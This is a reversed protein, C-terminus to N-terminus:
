PNEDRLRWGKKKLKAKVRRDYMVTLLRDWASAFVVVLVILGIYGFFPTALYWSRVGIGILLIIFDVIAVAVFGAGGSLPSISALPGLELYLAALFNIVIFIASLILIQQWLVLALFPQLWALFESIM